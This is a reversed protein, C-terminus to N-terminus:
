NGTLEKYIKDFETKQYENTWTYHIGSGTSKNFESMRQSFMNHRSIRYDFGVNKYHLLKLECQAPLIDQHNRYFKGTHAGLVYNVNNIIKPSFIVPKSYQQEYVGETIQETILKNYTPFCKSVMNYGTPQYVAYRTENLYNIIGSDHYLLEDADVIIVYDSQDDLWCTNKIRVHISDDFSNESKFSKIDTVLPYNSAIKVTDDTSENDYIIIRSAFQSYYDLFFPIMKEENYTVTYVTITM